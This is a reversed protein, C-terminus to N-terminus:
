FSKLTLLYNKYIDMGQPYSGQLAKKFPKDDFVHVVKKDKIDVMLIKDINSDSILVYPSNKIAFMYSPHIPYKNSYGKPLMKIDYLKKFSKKDIVVIKDSGWLSVILYNGDSIVQYPYPGVNLYKKEKTEQNIRVLANSLLGTAYIYGKDAVVSNPYFKFGYEWKGQYYYPYQDKPFSKFDIKYKEISYDNQNQFNIKIIEDSSGGAIYFNGKKDAYIGQYIDGKIGKDYDKPSFSIKNLVCLNKDLLLFYREKTAGSTIVGIYKKNYAINVPFNPTKIFDGYPTIKRTSPLSFTYNEINELNVNETCRSQAYVLSSFFLFIFLPILDKNM